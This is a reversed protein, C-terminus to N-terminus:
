MNKQIKQLPVTNNLMEPTIGAENLASIIETTNVNNLMEPTIGADNLAANSILNSNIQTQDVLGLEVLSNNDILGYGVLTNLDETKVGSNAMIKQLDQDTDLPSGQGTPSITICNVVLIMSGFILSVLFGYKLIMRM